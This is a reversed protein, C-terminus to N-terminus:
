KRLLATANSGGGSTLELEKPSVVSVQLGVSRDPVVRKSSMPVEKINKKKNVSNTGRSKISFYIVARRM